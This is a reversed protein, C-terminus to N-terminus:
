TPLDYLRVSNDNYSVLLVPKGARDASGCMRLAGALTVQVCLGNGLVGTM